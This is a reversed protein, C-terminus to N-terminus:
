NDLCVGALSNVRDRYSELHPKVVEGSPRVGM